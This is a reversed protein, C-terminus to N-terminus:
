SVCAVSRLEQYLALYGETMRAPSYTLGRVRARNGLRARRPPQAILETLAELLARHDDPAVFLAAGDWLERLSPIDGLVLACGALAAELVTQGFPEYRAPLAYIAARRYAAAMTRPGLAGLRRLHRPEATQSAEQGPPTADGAAEVPWPLDAAVADLAALNKAPDWLRGATLVVPEKTGPVYRTADRGNPVVRGGQVGYHRQLAALMAASPAVVAHAQSLGCRMAARYRDWRAPAREGRVAEFWSLVCSHGVAVVPAPWRLAAFVPESLHILDVEHEGALQVLWRGALAVDDWPEEMWPLRYRGVVLQLDPVARAAEAQAASPVPGLTALTTQVGALRLGGALELAHSWVGGVTDATMLVRM